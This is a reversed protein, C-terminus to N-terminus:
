PRKRLGLVGFLVLFLDFVTLIANKQTQVAM